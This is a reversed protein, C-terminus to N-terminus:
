DASDRNHGNGVVYHKFDRRHHATRSYSPPDYFILQTGSWEFQIPVVLLESLATCVSVHLEPPVIFLMFGGGGAGLLKGGLAGARRARSYIENVFDPAIKNSLRRKLEWTEHLLRGFESMDNDGALTDVAVDVLKRMEHLEHTHDSISRVQAAAIESANRVVGTYFMLLHNEIQAVRLRTLPLPQVQFLGNPAIDIRNLGGFATQIQDQVGVTEHLLDREVHIAQQALTEKSVLEGKLAHLAHLVGVTFASSSGLGSRAPLDGAHHIEIGEVVNLYRMVSSVVPHEIQENTKVVEIKSWVIRSLYEFFPPLFRCNIYCYRNITAALVAGGHDSYWAPYDTGGGFFSIRFPTRCIIM